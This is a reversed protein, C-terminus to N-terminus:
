LDHRMKHKRLDIEFAELVDLSRRQTNKTFGVYRQTANRGAVLVACLHPKHRVRGHGKVSLSAAIEFSMHAFICFGGSLDRDCHHERRVRDGKLCEGSTTLLHGAICFRLCTQHVTLMFRLRRKTNEGTASKSVLNEANACFVKALYGTGVRKERHTEDKSVVICKSSTTYCRRNWDRALSRSGPVSM